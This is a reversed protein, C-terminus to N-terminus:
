AVEYLGATIQWNTGGANLDMVYTPFHNSGTQVPLDYDPQLEITSAGNPVLTVIVNSTNKVVLARDRTAPLFLSGPAVATVYIAEDTDTVVYPLSSVYTATALRASEQALIVSAADSVYSFTRVTTGDARKLVITYGTPLIYVTPIEV